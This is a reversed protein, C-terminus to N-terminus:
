FFAFYGSFLPLPAAASWLVKSGEQIGDRRQANTEEATSQLSNATLKRGHVPKFAFDATVLMAAPSGVVVPTHLGKIPAQLVNAPVGGVGIRTIKDTVIGLLGNLLADLPKGSGRSVVVGEVM